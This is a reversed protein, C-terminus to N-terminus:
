QSVQEDEAADTPAIVFAGKYRVGHRGLEYSLVAGNAACIERALYLGLGTGRAETTFFPEFVHEIMEPPLGPGDDAVVFELRDDVGRRWEIRVAGPERSSYRLANTVLNMLVQRLQGSDFPLPDGATVMIEIRDDRGDSMATFEPALAGLFRAVDIPERSPRERRAVSLVDQIVRDIRVTNTEVIGALRQLGPKTLQEALLSNAHRIAGLPNRIEHAISASLRGMSALKLQQAREELQRLDEIVLVAGSPAQGEPRLLRVRVRHRSAAAVPGLTGQGVSADGERAPASGDGREAAGREGTSALDRADVVCGVEGDGDARTSAGDLDRAVREIGPWPGQAGCMHQASRNMTRVKGVEDLVVVGQPLESIVLQTVELQARLDVGRRSALMEQAALRTALRNVLIATAFCATGIFAASVFEGHAPPEVTLERWLSEGLLMLSASAAFFAAGRATSLVAGGAVAAVMLVGIGSRAGGAAHLMLAIATLDVFVQVFVQFQFRRRVFAISLLVAAVILYVLAVRVFLIRDDLARASLPVNQLSAVAVLVAAILVRGLAFYRLSAWFSPAM